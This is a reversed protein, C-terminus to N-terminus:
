PSIRRDPQVTRCRPSSGSAFPFARVSEDSHPINDGDRLVRLLICKRCTSYHKELFAEPSSHDSANLKAPSFLIHGTFWACFDGALPFGLLGCCFRVRAFGDRAALFGDVDQRIRMPVPLPAERKLVSPQQQHIKQVPQKVQHLMTRLVLVVVKIGLRDEQLVVKFEPGLITRAQLRQDLRASDDNARPIGQRLLVRDAPFGQHPVQEHPTPDPVGETLRRPHTICRGRVPLDGLHSLDVGSEADVANDEIPTDM